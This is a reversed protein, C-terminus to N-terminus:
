TLANVPYVGSVSNQDAGMAAASHQDTVTAAAATYAYAGTCTNPSQSSSSKYGAAAQQLTNMQCHVGQLVAASPHQLVGASHAHMANCHLLMCQRPPRIRVCVIKYAEYRMVADCIFVHQLLPILAMRSRMAHSPVDHGM